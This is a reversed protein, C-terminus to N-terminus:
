NSHRVFTHSSSMCAYWSYNLGIQQSVSLLVAIVACSGYLSGFTDPIRYINPQNTSVLSGATM